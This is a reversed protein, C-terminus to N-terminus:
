PLRGPQFIEGVNGMRGNGPFVPTVDLCIHGAVIVKGRTKM